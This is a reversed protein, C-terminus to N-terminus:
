FSGSLFHTKLIIDIHNLTVAFSDEELIWSQNSSNEEAGLQGDIEIDAEVPSEPIEASEAAADIAAETKEEMLKEVEAVTYSSGCYDCQLKGTEGDYYLPATCAPCKYNTIKDSL